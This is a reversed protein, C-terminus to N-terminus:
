GHYAPSFAEDQKEEMAYLLDEVLEPRDHLDFTLRETGCIEILLKQFPSRDIVALEVGDDGMNDQAELIVSVCGGRPTHDLANELFNELVRNILRIEAIVFPVRESGQM